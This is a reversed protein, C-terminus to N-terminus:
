AANSGVRFEHRVNAVEVLHVTVMESRIIEKLGVVALSAASWNGSSMFGGALAEAARQFDAVM